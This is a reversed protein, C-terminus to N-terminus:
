ERGSATVALVAVLGAAIALPIALGHHLVLWAGLAAGAVMAVVSATRRPSRTGPGGGARSDAALGTLTMTLVTTTLDPVGLKRVTANRLGMAFATVAILTYVTATAGPAAFAVVASVGLLVAEAALTLRAWTRRSGSGLRVAVRGGAVAGVVFSGLSTLTHAVSFGPAGAAAFGLVVVNGTMNATFVHELGLYSVADILGSVVTLVLLVAVLRLGRAEPDRAPRTDTGSHESM